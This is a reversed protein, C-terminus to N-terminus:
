GKRRTSCGIRDCLQGVLQNLKEPPAGLPIVPGDPRRKECGLRLSGDALSLVAHALRGRFTWGVHERGERCDKSCFRAKPSTLHAGCRECHRAVDAM